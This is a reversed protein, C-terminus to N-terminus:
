RLLSLVVSIGLIGLVLVSLWGYRRDGARFFGAAVTIVTALPTIMLALIALDIIGAAKGDLL